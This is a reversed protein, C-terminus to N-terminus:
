LCSGGYHTVGLHANYSTAGTSLVQAGSWSFTTGGANRTAKAYYIGLVAGDSAEWVLHLNGASDATVSPLWASDNTFDLSQPPTWTSSNALRTSLWLGAPPGDSYWVATLNGAMDATIAPTASWGLGVALDTVTNSANPAHNSNPLPANNRGPQSNPNVSLRLIQVLQKANVRVLADVHAGAALADLAIKKRGAALRSKATVRWAM